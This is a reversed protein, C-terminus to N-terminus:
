RGALWRKVDADVPDVADDFEHHNEVFSAVM